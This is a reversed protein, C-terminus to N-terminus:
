QSSSEITAFDNFITQFDFIWRKEFVTKCVYKAYAAERLNTEAGRVRNNDIRVVSLFIRRIQVDRLFM